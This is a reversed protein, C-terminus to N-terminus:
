PLRVPPAPSLSGASEWSQAENNMFFLFYLNTGETFPPPLGRRLRSPPGPVPDSHGPLESAQLPGAARPSPGDPATASGSPGLGQPATGHPPTQTIVPMVQSVPGAPRYGSAM